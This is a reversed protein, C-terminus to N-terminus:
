TTTEEPADQSTLLPVSSGQNALWERAKEGVCDVDHSEKTRANSAAGCFPCASEYVDPDSMTEHYRLITSEAHEIMARVHLVADDVEPQCDSCGLCGRGECQDGGSTVRVDTLLAPHYGERYAVRWWAPQYPERPWRGVFRLWWRARRLRGPKKQEYVWSFSQCVTCHDLTPADSNCRPCRGAAVRLRGIVKVLLNPPRLKSPSM